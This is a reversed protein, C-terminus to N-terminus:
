KDSVTLKYKKVYQEHYFYLAEYSGIHKNLMYEDISQAIRYTINFFHQMKKETLKDARLLDLTRNKRSEEIDRGFSHAAKNRMNRMKELDSISIKLIEPADSFISYFVNSRSQWDGRTIGETIDDVLGRYRKNNFFENKLFVLGDNQHTMGLIVIPNSELAIKTVAALYTEFNSCMTVLVNIRNWNSFSIISEEWKDLTPALRRVDPGSANFFIPVTMKQTEQRKKYKTQEVMPVYAWYYDNIVRTHQRYVKFAWTNKDISENRNFQNEKIDLLNNGNYKPNKKLEEIIDISNILARSVFDASKNKIIYDFYKKGKGLLQGASEISLKQEELYQQFDVITQKIEM